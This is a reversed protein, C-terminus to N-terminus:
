IAQAGEEPPMPPDREVRTYENILQFHDARIEGQRIVHKGPEISRIRLCDVEVTVM